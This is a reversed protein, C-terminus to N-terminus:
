RQDAQPRGSEIMWSSVTRVAGGPDSTDAALFDTRWQSANITCLTYGSNEDYFRVQPNEPLSPKTLHSTSAASSSIGTTLFETLVPLGDLNRDAPVNNVWATHWDASLFVPNRARTEALDDLLRQRAAPYGNWSAYYVDRGAGAALDYPTFLGAQVIPNWATDTSSLSRRLWQEQSAGLMSRAPDHVQQDDRFQQTDLLHLRALAGFDINHHIRMSPGNPHAVASMPLHEYFAQYAASRRDSPTQEGDEAAEDSNPIVLWPASAHADQLHPDLRYLAHRLRYSQLDTADARLHSPIEALRPRAGTTYVNEYIYDGVHVVLDLDRVAMDRYATYYGDEFRQCSAVAMRLTSVRADEAPLTRTRGIRSTARGCHFRYFYWRGPALGAVDVHVSHAAEPFAVATGQQVVKCFREDEAIQWQVPLARPALGGDIELPSPALRTWLTVRTPTPAGSAVGLTFPYRDWEGIAVGTGFYLGAAAGLGGGLVGRRGIRIM